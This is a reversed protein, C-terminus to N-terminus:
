GEWTAHLICPDNRGHQTILITAEPPIQGALIFQTVDAVTCYSTELKHRVNNTRTIIM